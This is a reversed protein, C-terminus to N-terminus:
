EIDIVFKGWESLGESSISYPYVGPQLRDGDFQLQNAGQKGNLPRTEVVQGLSNYVTLLLDDVVRDSSFSIVTSGQFPNPHNSLKSRGPSNSGDVSWYCSSAVLWYNDLVIPGGDLGSGVESIWTGDAILDSIDPDTAAIRFDFEIMLPVSGSCSSLNATNALENWQSETGNIYVCGQAPDQNPITGENYWIGWPAEVTDVTLGDDVNTGFDIGIPVNSFETLKLADIYFTVPIVNGQGTDVNMVTDTLTVLDIIRIQDGCGVCTYVTAISDPWFGFSAVSLAPDPSCQGFLVSVSSLCISVSLILEKMTM